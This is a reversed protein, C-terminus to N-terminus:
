KLYARYFRRNYGSIASSLNISGSVPITSTSVSSWNLLNTSVQLVYNSGAPGSLRFTFNTKGSTLQPASLILPPLTITLVLAQTATASLADTVKATFNSTGAVTPTGSIVGNTSLHLGPALAGSSNTWNYPTQGGSATLTQNYAVGVTGDPLSATTVQLPASVALLSLSFVSGNGSSGGDSATGYLTDGSLVLEAVPTAGDSNGYPPSYSTATFMYLNTFGTGNTSLSFVTGAGSPFTLGGLATGYLTNGSLILGAYPNGGDYGTFSHLNTFGTGDTNVAFVTGEGYSGGEEATGYLTNGSLILGAYPTAGDSNDYSFAIFPTFSYLTTFGTGDTNVKFVTGYDFGGGRITTGYLVNGSLILGAWPYAGEDNFDVDNFNHLTTFGTGDTKIAFVTGAGLSLFRNCGTTGYLTNGSLILRGYPAFGEGGGTFSHLTTFGTGDTNVAFVTGGGSTGGNETTGYLTNGSLILGALPESGDSNTYVGDSNTNDLSSFNHLTRFGEGDSNVAFVTGNGSSGGYFATGYLTHGLLILGAQPQSGDSNTYPWNSGSLATFGHLTTLTQATVRGALILGLIAILAALFFLNKIRTKM